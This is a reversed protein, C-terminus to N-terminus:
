RKAVVLSSSSMAGHADDSHVDVTDEHLRHGQQVALGSPQAPRVHAPVPQLLEGTRGQGMVVVNHDLRRAVRRGHGLHKARMDPAHHDGVGLLDPQNGLGLELRVRDICSDQGPEIGAAKQRLDPERILPSSRQPALDAPAFLEDPLSRRDLIDHLGDQVRM